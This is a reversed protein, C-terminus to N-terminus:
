KRGAKFYSQALSITAMILGAIATTTYLRAREKSLIENEETLAVADLKKDIHTSLLHFVDQPPTHNDLDFEAVEDRQRISDLIDDKNERFMKLRRETKSADVDELRKELRIMKGKQADIPCFGPNPNPDFKRVQHGCDPCISRGPLRAWIDKEPVNMFIPIHLDRTNLIIQRTADGQVKTRPFGDFIFGSSCDPEALRKVMMGIPIEDPLYAPYHAADFKQIMGGLKSSARFEDRFLDGASINPISFHQSILDGQTGKGSGSTGILNVILRRSHDFTLLRHGKKLILQHTKLSTSSFDAPVPRWIRDQYVINFAEYQGRILAKSRLNYISVWEFASHESPDLVVPPKTELRAWFLDIIYDWGPIRAYFHGKYSLKDETLNIQTEEVLERLITQAPTESKEKKGGPIGWTEPQDERSARKLLLVHNDHELFLTSIRTKMKFDPFVDVTPALVPQISMALPQNSLKQLHSQYFRSCILSSTKELFTKYLMCVVAQPISSSRDLMEYDAWTVTNFYIFAKFLHFKERHLTDDTKYFEFIDEDKVDCIIAFHALDWMPDNYCSLEWDHLYLLSGNQFFNEASPDNHCPMKLFVDSPILKLLRKLESAIRITEPSLSLGKSVALSETKEFREFYDFSKDIFDIKSTHLKKLLALAQEITHKSTFSDKNLSSGKVFKSLMIESSSLSIPPEILSLGQDFAWTLFQHELQRRQLCRAIVGNIRLVWLNQSADLILFNKNSFSPLINQFILPAPLKSILFDILVHKDQIEKQDEIPISETYGIYATSTAVNM